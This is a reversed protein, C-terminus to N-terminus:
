FNKRLGVSLGLSNSFTKVVADKNISTLAFRATPMLTVSLKKTLKYAAGIGAFGSFYIPKLGEIKNLIDIENHPGQQIDTEVKGMTLFNTTVGAMAEITLKGKPISYKVAIPIGLYRLKHITATIKISDGIAPSNQFSPVLYGYGSSINLRYKINGNNDPQAYITEPNVTININSFMLGTQLTFRKNLKYDLLLGTTSSFEHREGKEIKTANDPQNGPKDTQLHYSAIDPSFFLGASLRSPKGKKIKKNSAVTNLPEVDPIIKNNALPQLLKKSVVSDRIIREITVNNLQRLLPLQIGTEKDYNNIVAEDFDKVPEANQINIKYVAKSFFKNHKLNASSNLVDSNDSFSKDVASNNNATNQQYNNRRASDNIKKPDTINASVDKSNSDNVPKKNVREEKNQKALNNKNHRNSLEYISLGLLLFLLVLAVRKLSTYKKRISVVNDKDLTKDIGNWVQPSPAEENDELGDRFLNEINQLNKDM